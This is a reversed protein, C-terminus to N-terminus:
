SLWCRTLSWPAHKGRTWGWATRPILAGHSFPHGSDTLMEWKVDPFSEASESLPSRSICADIGGKASWENRLHFVAKSAVHHMQPHPVFYMNMPLTASPVLGAFRTTGRSAVSVRKQRATFTQCPWLTQRNRIHRAVHGRSADRSLAFFCGPDGPPRPMWTPLCFLMTFPEAWHSPDPVTISSVSCCSPLLKQDVLTCSVVIRASLLMRVRAVLLGCTKSSRSSRVL